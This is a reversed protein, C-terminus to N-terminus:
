HICCIVVVVVIRVLFYAAMNLGRFDSSFYPSTGDIAVVLNYGLFRDDQHNFENDVLVTENYNFHSAMVIHNQLARGTAASVFLLTLDTEYDSSMPVLDPAVQDDYIIIYKVFPGYHSALIAKEYFTCEGREVLLAVPLNVRPPPLPLIDQDAIDIVFSNDQDNEDIMMSSDMTSSHANKPEKTEIITSNNAKNNENNNGVFPPRPQMNKLEDSCMHPQDKVLTLYAQIPPNDEDVFESLKGGFRAPLSVYFENYQPIAVVAEVYPLTCFFLLVLALLEKGAM